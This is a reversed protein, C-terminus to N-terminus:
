VLRFEITHDAGNVPFRLECRGQLERTVFSRVLETGLSPEIPANIPRGGRERWHLRVLRGADLAAVEWQVTLQGGPVSHVGYKCSNTFWEVMIMTLPLAIRPPISLEPGQVAMATEYQPISKMVALLSTVLSAMSLERWGQESLLQHVHSMGLLRSEIAAAFADVDKARSKALSILSMLGALNNKVRHDVEMLLRKNHEAADKHHKESELLAQEARKRETIDTCVGFADWRAYGRPQVSVDEHLWRVHRNRDYCRFAHSYRTEGNILARASHGWAERRDSPDRSDLWVPVYSRGPPVDLPVIQQAAHEDQIVVKWQLKRQEGTVDQEWGPTGQIEARWLICRAHSAVSRLEEEARMRETLDEHMLVIERVDGRDSKVPYVHARVCRAIDKYKGRLPAYFVPPLNAAEGAVARQLYPMIERQV